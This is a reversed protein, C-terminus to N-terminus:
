VVDIEYACAIRCNYSGQPTVRWRGCAEVYRRAFEKGWEPDTMNKGVVRLPKGLRGYYNRTIGGDRLGGSGTQDARAPGGADLFLNREWQAAACM